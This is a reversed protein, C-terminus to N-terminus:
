NRGRYRFYALLRNNRPYVFFFSPKFYMNLTGLEVIELTEVDPSGLVFNNKIVVLSFIPLPNYDEGHKILFENLSIDKCTYFEYGTDELIFRKIYISHPILFGTSCTMKIIIRYIIGGFNFDYNGKRLNGCFNANVSIVPGRDVNNVM